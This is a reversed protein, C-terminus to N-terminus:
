AKVVPSLAHFVFRMRRFGVISARTQSMRPRTFGSVVMWEPVAVMEVNLASMVEASRDSEAL